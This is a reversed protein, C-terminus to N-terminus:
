IANVHSLGPRGSPRSDLSRSDDARPDHTGADGLNERRGPEADHQHVAFRALSRRGELLDDRAPAGPRRCALRVRGRDFSQEIADPRDLREMRQRARIKDDFGDDLPEFGLAVQHARQLGDDGRAGDDRGVGRGQRHRRDGGGGFPRFTDGAIVEEIGHRRHLEDLDDAAGVGSDIDFPRKHIQSATEAMAGNQGGVRGAEDDVVGAPCEVRFGQGHQAFAHRGNGLDVRDKAIRGPEPHPRELQHIQGPEVDRM